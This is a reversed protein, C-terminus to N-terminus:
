ISEAERDIIGVIAAIIAESITPQLASYRHQATTIQFGYGVNGDTYSELISKYGRSSLMPLLVVADTDDLPKNNRYTFVGYARLEAANLHKRFRGNLIWNAIKDNL